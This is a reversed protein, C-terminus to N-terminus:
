DDRRASADRGDSSGSGASASPPQEGGSEREAEARSVGGRSPTSAASEASRTPPPTPAPTPAQGPAPAASTGAGPARAPPRTPARTAPRPVVSAAPPLLRSGATLPESSLGIRQSVLQSTGWTVAAALAIGLAALLAILATRRRSSM